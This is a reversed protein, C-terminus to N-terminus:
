IKRWGTQKHCAIYDNTVQQTLPTLRLHNTFIALKFNAAIYSNTLTKVSKNTLALFREVIGLAHKGTHLVSECLFYELNPICNSIKQYKQRIKM